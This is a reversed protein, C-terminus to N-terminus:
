KRIKIVNIFKQLSKQEKLSVKESLHELNRINEQFVKTQEEQMNIEIEFLIYCDLCIFEYRRINKTEKIYEDWYCVCEISHCQPCNKNKMYPIEKLYVLFKHKDNCKKKIKERIQQVMNM